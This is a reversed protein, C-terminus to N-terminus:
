PDPLPPDTLSLVRDRAAEHIDLLEQGARVFEDDWELEVVAGWDWGSGSWREPDSRLPDDVPIPGGHTRDSAGVGWPQASGLPAVRRAPSRRHDLAGAVLAYVGRGVRVARGQEHEYAMADGLAQVSRDNGIAFGYRHLLEHLERLTLTGHRDLIVLCTGRLAAGRLVLPDEVCPPLPPADVAAPRRVHRYPRAPWLRDRLAVLRRVAARRRYTLSALEQDLRQVEANLERRYALARERWHGHLRRRPHLALQEGLEPDSM